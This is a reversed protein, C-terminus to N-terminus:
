PRRRPLGVRGEEPRNRILQPALGGTTTRATCWRRSAFSRPASGSRRGADPDRSRDRRSAGRRRPPDIADDETALRGPRMALTGFTAVLPRDRGPSRRGSRKGDRPPGGRPRRLPVEHRDRDPKRGLARSPADPPPHARGRPLLRYPHRRGIRGGWATPRRSGRNSGRHVRAGMDMLKKASADSRALGAWRTGRM